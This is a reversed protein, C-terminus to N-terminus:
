KNNGGIPFAGTTYPNINFNWGSLQELEEDSTEYLNVEILKATAPNSHSFGLTTIPSSPNDPNEMFTFEYRFGTRTRFERGDPLEYLNWNPDSMGLEVMWVGNFLNSDDIAVKVIEPFDLFFQVTWDGRGQSTTLKRGEVPSNDRYFKEAAIFQDWIDAIPRNPNYKEMVELCISQMKAASDAASVAPVEHHYKGILDPPCQLHKPVGDAFYPNSSSFGRIHLVGPLSQLGTNIDDTLEIQTNTRSKEANPKNVEASADAAQERNNATTAIRQKESQRIIQTPETTQERYPATTHQYWLYCLGAFIVLFGFGGLTWKNTFIDRYM